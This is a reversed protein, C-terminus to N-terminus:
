NNIEPLIFGWGKLHNRITGEDYYLKERELRKKIHLSVLHQSIKKRSEERYLRLAEENAYNWIKQKLESTKNITKDECTLKLWSTLKPYEELCKKRRNETERCKASLLNYDAYPMDSIIAREIYWLLPMKGTINESWTSVIEYIKSIKPHLIDSFHLQRIGGNDRIMVEEPNCGALCCSALVEDVLGMAFAEDLWILNQSLNNLEM